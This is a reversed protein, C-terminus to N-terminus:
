SLSSNRYKHCLRQTGGEGGFFNNAMFKVRYAPLPLPIHFRGFFKNKSIHAQFM